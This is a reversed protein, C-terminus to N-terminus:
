NRGSTIASSVGLFALIEANVKDKQQFNAAHGAGELAAYRAKPLTQRLWDIHAEPVDQDKTGWFLLLDRDTLEAYTDRYSTLADTRSMSLLAQEYGVYRTQERFRV